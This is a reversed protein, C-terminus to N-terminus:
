LLSDLLNVNESLDFSTKVVVSFSIYGDYLILNKIQQKIFDVYNRVILPTKVDMM